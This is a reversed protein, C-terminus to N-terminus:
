GHDGEYGAAKSRSQTPQCSRCLGSSDLPKGCCTRRVASCLIRPNHDGGCRHCGVTPAGRHFIHNPCNQGEEWLRDREATLSAITARSEQLLGELYRCQENWRATVRKDEEQATALEAQLSEAATANGHARDAWKDRDEQAAALEARLRTYVECPQSCPHCGNGDVPCKM